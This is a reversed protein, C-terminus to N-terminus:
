RRVRGGSDRTRRLSRLGLEGRVRRYSLKRFAAPGRVGSVASSVTRALLHDLQQLQRRDTVVGALLPAASGHLHHDDPDLLTNLAGAVAHGRRDIDFDRLARAANGARRRADRLLGRTKHHGLAVVGDLTVRMGLFPVNTTGRAAPWAESSRGAGTLYLDHRKEANLQLGLAALRRDLTESAARAVDADPHAFVLDDSYRGYFASPISGLELDVESLFLNFCVCSIPQGTAVGRLRTAPPDGDTAVTPRVVDSILQRDAATPPPSGLGAIARELQTWLPSRAGLPISDTYSDVDRRLVYVGRTRPDPRARRHARMYRALSSVGDLWSTGARYSYVSSSLLPEVAEALVDAVVGHVILDLLPYDFVMRRRGDILIARITAPRLQYDGADVTRALLRAVEGRHMVVTALSIGTDTLRQLGGDFLHRQHLRDIQREYRRHDALAAHIGRRSRGGLGRGGLRAPWSAVAM